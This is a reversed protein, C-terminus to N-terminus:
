RFKADIEWLDDLQHKGDHRRVFSNWDRFSAELTKFWKEKPRSPEAQVEPDTLSRKVDSTTKSPMVHDLDELKVSPKVSESSTTYSSFSTPFRGSGSKSMCFRYKLTATVRYGAIEFEKQIMQSNGFEKTPPLQQNDCLNDVLVLTQEGMEFAPSAGM